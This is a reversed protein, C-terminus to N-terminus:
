DVTLSNREVCLSSMFIVSYSYSVPKSCRRKAKSEAALLCAELEPDAESDLGSTENNGLNVDDAFHIMTDMDDSGFDHSSVEINQHFSDWLEFVIPHM